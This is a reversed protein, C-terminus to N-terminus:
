QKNYIPDLLPSPYSTARKAATSGDYTTSAAALRMTTGTVNFSTFYTPSAGLDLATMTTDASSGQLTVSGVAYTSSGQNTLLYGGQNGTVIVCAEYKFTYRGSSFTVTVREGYAGHITLGCSGGTPHGDSSYVWTGQLAQEQASMAATGSDGGGGCATLLAASALVALHKM